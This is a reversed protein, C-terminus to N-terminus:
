ELDALEDKIRARTLDIEEVLADVVSRTSSVSEWNKAWAQRLNVTQNQVPASLLFSLDGILGVKVWGLRPSGAVPDNDYHAAYIVQELEALLHLMEFSAMRRNSNDETVELRWANYSFSIISLLMGAMAALYYVKLRKRLSEAM